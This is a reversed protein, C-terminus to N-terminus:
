LTFVTFNNTLEGIERIVGFERPPCAAVSCSTISRRRSRTNSFLGTSSPVSTSPAGAGIVALLCDVFVLSAARAVDGVPTMVIDKSLPFPTASPCDFPSLRPFHLDGSLRSAFCCLGGRTFLLLICCTSIKSTVYPKVEFYMILIQPPLRGGKGLKIEGFGTVNSM